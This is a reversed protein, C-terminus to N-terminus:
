GCKAYVNLPLTDFRSSMQVAKRDILSYGDVDHETNCPTGAPVTGIPVMAFDGVSQRMKYATTNSTSVTLTLGSPSQPKPQAILKCSENSHDSEVGAVIATVEYCQTGPNVNQRVSHCTPLPSPALLVKTQGQLAGYLNYTITTGTPISSGDSFKTPAVCDVTIDTAIAPASFALISLLVGLLLSFTKM